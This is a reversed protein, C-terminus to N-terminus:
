FRVPVNLSSGGLQGRSDDGWCYVQGSLGLACRHMAGASVAAYRAAGLLAPAAGQSAM